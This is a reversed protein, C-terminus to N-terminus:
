SITLPVLNNVEKVRDLDPFYAYYKGSKKYCLAGVKGDSEIFYTDKDITTVDSASLNDIISISSRKIRVKCLYDIYYIEAYAGDTSLIFGLSGEPIAQWFGFNKVAISGKNVRIPRNMEIKSDDSYVKRLVLTSAQKDTIFMPPHTASNIYFVEPIANFIDQKRKDKIAKDNTVPLSPCDDSIDSYGNPFNQSKNFILSCQCSPHGSQTFIPPYGKYGAQMANNLLDDILYTQGHNQDCRCKDMDKKHKTSDDMFERGLMWTVYKGGLGGLGLYYLTNFSVDFKQDFIDINDMTMPYFQMVAEEYNQPINNTFTDNFSPFDNKNEQPVDQLSLGQFPQFKFGNPDNDEPNISQIPQPQQTQQQAPQTDYLDKNDKEHQYEDIDNGYENLVDASFKYRSNM